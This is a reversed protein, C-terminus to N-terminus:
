TGARARWRRQAVVIGAIILVYGIGHFWEPREGLFVIAIASGFVPILHFFQGARNAGILEVGRNFCFYALVSPFIIVYLIVGFAAPTPNMRYGAGFEVVFIPILMVAGAGITFSLFSLFHIQPRKRLLVTYLAYLAMAAVLLVDGLNLTLGFLVEPHGRTIITIVGSLSIVIGILQARTLRDRFLILSWLAVLLPGSSQMLLANIAQTYNLGTYAVTNYLTVGTLSLILLIPLNARIVPWDRKLHRWGVALLILAAGGWRIQALTVPPVTGAIFRGLVINIAWFLSTLSLLLYPRDAISRAGSQSADM